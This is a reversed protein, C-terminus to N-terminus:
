RPPRQESITTRWKGRLSQTAGLISGVGFVGIAIALVLLVSKTYDSKLDRIVKIFRPRM